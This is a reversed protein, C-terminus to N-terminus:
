ALPKWSGNARVYLSSREGVLVAVILKGDTTYTAASAGSPVEIASWSAGGDTSYQSGDTDLTLLQDGHADVAVALAGAESGLPSWSKGGDTTRVAGTEMSPAIATNPNTPDVWITGMFATGTTSRSEFTAGGDTSVLIGAQPSALYVTIGTAGLAHVDSVPLGPVKAFAAGDDTSKYLGEHGGALIASGTAAWGMVDKEDLSSIQKWAGGASARFGAGGHGGVFLRDGFEGVAHLDGGVIPGSVTEPKDSRGGILAVITLAAALLLIPVVLRRARPSLGLIRTDAASTM